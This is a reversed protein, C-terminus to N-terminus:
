LCNVVKPLEGQKLNVKAANLTYVQITDSDFSLTKSLQGGMKLM